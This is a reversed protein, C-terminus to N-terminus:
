RWSVLIGEEDLAVGTSSDAERAIREVQGIDVRALYTRARRSPPSAHSVPDCCAPNM